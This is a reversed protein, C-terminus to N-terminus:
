PSSVSSSNRSLDFLVSRIEQAWVGQAGTRQFALDDSIRWNSLDGILYVATAHPAWERLIWQDGQFHLGFYEHGSAFDALTQNRATLRGATRHILDLRSALAKEHPKLWPDDALLRDLSQRIQDTSM